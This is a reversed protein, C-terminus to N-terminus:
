LKLGGRSVYKLINNEKIFINDENSVLFSTKLVKKNNCFVVSANILEQAKARSPVLNRDVMEKDIRNKM